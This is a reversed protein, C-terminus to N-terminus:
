ACFRPWSMAFATARLGSLINGTRGPTKLVCRLYRRRGGRPPCTFIAARERSACTGRGSPESPSRLPPQRMPIFSIRGRLFTWARKRSGALRSASAAAKRGWCSESSSFPILGWSRGRGGAQMPDFERSSDDEILKTFAADVAKISGIVGSEAVGILQQFAPFFATKLAELLVCGREAALLFLEEVEERSLALPKECLVHKGKLLARKVLEYHLHHPVAVYVAHVKDLFREYETYYELLEYSEAFRRVKEEDRGYVATIEIGSVYKSEQLFRGAIRGHGAIGMHVIFNRASRLDTSSVGKTRELYVVECHERLYDFKGTWDSGIVFIDAGYKQIDHLKQGELEETIILDALGTKRVNEVREELSELVNLKGRSQDYSDTTVGVILRDGLARARKLLNVHGTHLLDFTGYTIVTKM